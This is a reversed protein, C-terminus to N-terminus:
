GRVIRKAYQGMRKFINKPPIQLALKELISMVEETTVDPTSYVEAPSKEGWNYKCSFLIKVSRRSDLEFKLSAFYDGRDLPIYDVNQSVSKGWGLLNPPDFDGGADLLSNNLKKTVRKKYKKYKM